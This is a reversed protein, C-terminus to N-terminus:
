AVPQRQFSSSFLRKRRAVSCALCDSQREQQSIRLLSTCSNRLEHRGVFTLEARGADVRRRARPASSNLAARTDNLNNITTVRGSGCVGRLAKRRRGAERGRHADAPTAAHRKDPPSTTSSRASRAAEDNEVHEFYHRATQHRRRRAATLRRRGPRGEGIASAPLNCNIRGPPRSKNKKKTQKHGQAVCGDGQDLWRDSPNGGWGLPEKGSAKPAFSQNIRQSASKSVVDAQLSSVRSHCDRMLLPGLLPQM